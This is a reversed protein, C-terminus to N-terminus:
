SKRLISLLAIILSILSRISSPKIFFFPLLIVNNYEDKVMIPEIFLGSISDKKGREFKPNWIATEEGTKAM